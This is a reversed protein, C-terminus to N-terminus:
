HSSMQTVFSCNTVLPEFLSCAFLFFFFLLPILCTNLRLGTQTPLSTLVASNFALPPVSAFLWAVQNFNVSFLLQMSLFANCSSWQQALDIYVAGWRSWSFSFETDCWKSKTLITVTEQSTILFSNHRLPLSSVQQSTSLTWSVSVQSLM